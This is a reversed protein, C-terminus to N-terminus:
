QRVKMGLGEPRGHPNMNYKRRAECEPIRGESRGHPSM